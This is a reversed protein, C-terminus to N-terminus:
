RGAETILIYAALSSFVLYCLMTAIAWKFTDRRWALWCAGASVLGITLFISLIIFPNM